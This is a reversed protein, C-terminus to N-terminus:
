EERSEDTFHDEQVHKRAMVIWVIGGAIMLIGGVGGTLALFRLQQGVLTTESVLLTRALLEAPLTISPILQSAVLCGIALVLVVSGVTILGIGRRKLTLYLAILGALPLTILNLTWLYSIYDPINRASGLSQSTLGVTEANIQDDVRSTQERIPQMITETAAAVTTYRPLCTMESLSTDPSQWTTCIPLKNLNESLRKEVNALFRQKEAGLSISFEIDPSKKNLWQYVADIVVNAMTAVKEEPFVERLSDIIETQTLPGGIPAGEIAQKTAGPLLADDRLITYFKSRSLIDKTQQADLISHDLVFYLASISLFVALLVALIGTGIGRWINMSRM